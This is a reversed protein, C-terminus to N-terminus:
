VSTPRLGPQPEVHDAFETTMVFRVIDDYNEIYSELSDAGVRVMTTSVPASPLRLFEFIRDLTGQHDEAHLLDREYVVPVHPLTAMLQEEAERAMANWRMGRLLAKPDIRFSRDGIAYEEREHWKQRSRAVQNSISQRFISLRRVYIIKWGNDHLRRMFAEPSGNLHRSYLHKLQYLKLNAGYVRNPPCGAARGNVYQWPSLVRCCLYQVSKLLIENECEIEPHSNLLTTLLTSGTRYHGFLVFRKEPLEYKGGLVRRYARLEKVRSRVFIGLNLKRAM